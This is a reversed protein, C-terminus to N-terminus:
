APLRSTEDFAREMSPPSSAPRNAPNRYREVFTQAAPRYDADRMVNKYDTEEDAIQGLLHAIWTEIHRKPVWIVVREDPERQDLRAQELATALQEHRYEVTQKDADIAVLLGINSQAAAKQRYLRVEAAYHNRVWQEAAGRGSPCILARLERYGRDLKKFVRHAFRQHASDECLVVLRVGNGAM